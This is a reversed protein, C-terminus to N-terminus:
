SNLCIDKWITNITFMAHIKQKRWTDPILLIYPHSRLDHSQYRFYSVISTGTQVRPNGRATNTYAPSLGATSTSASDSSKWHTFTLRPLVLLMELHVISKTILPLPLIELKNMVTHNCTALQHVCYLCLHIWIKCYYAYFIAAQGHMSSLFIRPSCKTATHRSANHLSLARGFSALNLLACLSPEHVRKTLSLFARPHDRITDFGGRIPPPVFHFWTSYIVTERATLM